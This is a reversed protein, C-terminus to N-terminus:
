ALREKAIPRRGGFGADVEHWHAVAPEDLKWCLCVERGEFWGPFDVLGAFADKIEAGLNAAEAEYGRMANQMADLEIALSAVEREIRPDNSGATQLSILRDYHVKMQVSLDTVDRLISRLLPLRANAEDVTFFRKEAITTTTM